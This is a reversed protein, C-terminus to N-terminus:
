KQVPKLLPFLIVERISNANGFLMTLRDIGIGEGGTPPMGHELALLYDEDMSHAEQDGAEYARLQEEFRKRQDEPDNVESYANAVEMAGIYLEFREVVDPNDPKSKSLPSLERPYETIFVPGTLTPEVLEDFLEGWLKGLSLKSADKIRKEMAFSRLQQENQLVEEPVHGIEILAQKMPLRKWPRHLSITKDGYQLDEKDLISRALTTILDETLDMLDNYDYYAIYFELMTFEPNHMTSIGENRFNRNIEYVRDLGGVTLRKLYLEPAIRLFLDLDLAKHHTKFPRALAGGALVQMMPTEVEVFGHSDFYRRMESIIKSRIEFIKRVEPNVILDLYRQRYRLEVDQLGHWKEPLPRLAKSLFTLKEAKVTLEGTKTRFIEGEVGLFDGMDLCEYVPFQEEGVIDKRVYVQIQASEQKLSLFGAKGHGRIALVRGSIREKVHLSELEEATKDGYQALVDQITRTFQFRRPYVDVGLQRLKALKERRQQIFQDETSM